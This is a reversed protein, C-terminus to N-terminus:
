LRTNYQGQQDAPHRVAASHLSPPHPGRVDDDDAAAAAASDRHQHKHHNNSSATCGM